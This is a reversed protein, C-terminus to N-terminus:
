NCYIVGYWYCTGPIGFGNLFVLENGSQIYFQYEYNNWPDWMTYYELTNSEDSYYDKVVTDHFYLDNPTEDDVGIIATVWKGHLIYDKITDLDLPSFVTMLSGYMGISCTRASALQLSAMTDSISGGLDSENGHAAMVLQRQGADVYYYEYFDKGYFPYVMGGYDFSHVGELDTLRAIWKM